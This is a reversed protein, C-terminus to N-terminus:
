SASTGGDSGPGSRSFHVVILAALLLGVIVNVAMRLQDADTAFVTGAFMLALGSSVVVSGRSMVWSRRDAEANAGFAGNGIWLLGVSAVVLGLWWLM